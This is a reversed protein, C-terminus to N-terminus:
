NGGDLRMLDSCHLTWVRDGAERAFAVDPPKRVWCHAATYLSTGQRDRVLMPGVGAGNQGLKDLNNVASLAANGDSSQMLHVKIDANANLTKFRTTSGDTGVKHGFDDEEQEIECFVGDAYGSSIPIGM